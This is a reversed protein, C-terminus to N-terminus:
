AGNFVSIKCVKYLFYSRNKGSGTIFFSHFSFTTCSNYTRLLYNNAIEQPVSLEFIFKRFSGFLLDNLQWMVLSFGMKCTVHIKTGSLIDCFTSQMRCAKSQILKCSTPLFGNMLRASFLPWLYHRM